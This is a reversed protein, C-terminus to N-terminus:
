NNPSKVVIVTHHSSLLIDGAQLNASKKTYNTSTYETFAPDAKMVRTLTAIDCHRPAYEKSIGAARMCMSVAQSCTTDGNITQASINHNHKEAEDYAVYRNPKDINYGIHQNACTDMMAQAIKLRVNKDKARFVYLWDGDYWDGTGVERGTQDGAKGGSLTGKENCRAEGIVVKKSYFKSKPYEAKNHTNLYEQLRKMSKTGIVGDCADKPTGIKLQLNKATIVGFKGDCTSFGLWRQLAMVTASKGDGYEVATFAPCYKKNLKETITFEGYVKVGLFEQLRTVTAKGGIGDVILKSMDLKGSWVRLVAGRMNDEYTIWGNRLDSTSYSDKVYVWHKGNEYKYATSCVFHGGSTWHVGKTGANRSGMLYIAVRDGKALENWLPNMTQHEMVETMGYHKMMEPIGAFYTGDGNPAAFQKCYPQITKPTENIYQNMEIICNCISVEGCGCDRIVWPKKPYPLSAWRTDYQKYNTKNM